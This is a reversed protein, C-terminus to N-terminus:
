KQKDDAVELVPETDKLFKDGLLIRMPLKPYGRMGNTYVEVRDPWFESESEQQTATGVHLFANGDAEPDLREYKPTGEIFVRLTKETIAVRVIRYDRPVRPSKHVLAMFWNTTSTRSALHSVLSDTKQPALHPDLWKPLEPDGALRRGWIGLASAGSVPALRLTHSEITWIGSSAHAVDTLQAPSRAVILIADDQTRSYEPNIVGLGQFLGHFRTDRESVQSVKEPELGGGRCSLGLAIFGVCYSLFRKM